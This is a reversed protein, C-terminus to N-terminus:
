SYLQVLWYIILLPLMLFLVLRSLWPSGRLDPIPRNLIFLLGWFIYSIRAFNLGHSLPLQTAVALVTPFAFAAYTTVFGTYVLKGERRMVAGTNFNAVRIVLCTGYFWLVLWDLLGTMGISYGAVIPALSFNLIDAAPDLQAGFAKAREDLHSRRAVAGDVADLLGVALLCLMALPLNGSLSFYCVLFALLMGTFTILNPLNYIGVFM